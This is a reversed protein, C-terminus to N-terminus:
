RTRRLAVIIATYESASWANLFSEVPIRKGAGIDCSPDNIIVCDGDVDNFNIGIVHVLGDANLGPYDFKGSQDLLMMNVYCIIEDRSDVYETLESLDSNSVTDVVFTNKGGKSTDWKMIEIFDDFSSGCESHFLGREVCEKLLDNQNIACDCLSSGVVSKLAIGDTQFEIQRKWLLSKTEFDGFTTIGDTELLVGNSALEVGYHKFYVGEEIEYLGDFFPNSELDFLSM